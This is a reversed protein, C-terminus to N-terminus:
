SEEHLLNKKYEQYAKIENKELYPEYTYNRDKFFNEIISETFYPNRIFIPGLLYTGYFNNKHIGEVISKPIYGTGNVVHFLHKEKVYKLISNRNQFGIIEEECIPSTYVQEGVIRYDTEEAEYSLINLTELEEGDLTRYCKGFLDLANGTVFFYKKNKFATTFMKKRKLIDLRVLEFAEKNGSGIYIMDYNKLDFDDEISFYHIIVKAHHEELHHRLALINGHEGYLNMLDYYLHAIKITEM